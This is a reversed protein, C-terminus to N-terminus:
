QTLISRPFLAFFGHKRSASGIDRLGCLATWSKSFTFWSKAHPRVRIKFRRASRHTIKRAAFSTEKMSELLPNLPDCRPLVFTRLAPLRSFNSHSVGRGADSAIGTSLDVANRGARRLCALTASRETWGMVCTRSHSCGTRQDKGADAVV